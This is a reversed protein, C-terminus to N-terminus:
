VAITKDGGAAQQNLHAHLDWIAKNDAVQGELPVTVDRAPIRDLLKFLGIVTKIFKVTADRSNLLLLCHGDPRQLMIYWGEVPKVGTEGRAFLKVVAGQEIERGANREFVVYNDTRDGM